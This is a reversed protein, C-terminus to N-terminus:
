IKKSPDKYVIKRYKIPAWVARKWYATALTMPVLIIMLQSDSPSPSLCAFNACVVSLFHSLRYFPSFPLRSFLHVLEKATLNVTDFIVLWSM